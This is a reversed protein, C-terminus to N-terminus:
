PTPQPKSDMDLEFSANAHFGQPGRVRSIEDPAQLVVEQTTVTMVRIKGDELDLDSESNSDRATMEIQTINNKGNEPATIPVQDAWASAETAVPWRPFGSKRNGTSTGVTTGYVYPRSPGSNSNNSFVRPFFKSITKRLTPLSACIIGVNLELSSWAAAGGNDWTVDKSISITYLSKLRLASTLVVFAGLAFVGMLAWKQRRPLQLEKLVPMPMVFIMVDTIINISSNAFWVNHRNICRGHLTQDWFFAIPQCMFIASCISWLGYIISIVGMVIIARRIKPGIFVRWYQLLISIKTFMLGTLYAPISAWLAKNLATIDHESITDLHHGQGHKVEIIILATLAISFAFSLLIAWDEAGPRAVTTRTYIRLIIIVFAIATSVVAAIVSQAARSAHADDSVGTTM